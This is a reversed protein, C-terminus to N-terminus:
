RKALAADLNEVDVGSLYAEVANGLWVILVGGALGAAITYQLNASERLGEVVDSPNLGEKVADSREDDGFTQYARGTLWGSLATGASGLILAGVTAGVIAAKGPERNYVQGWGPVVLSRFFAGSRSRLVVADASFAILEAKPLEMAEVALVQGSNADVVRAGVQFSEGLDLIEGLVLANAGALVGIRAAQDPEVFGMAGLEQEEVIRNLQSRETLQLRHDRALNTVVLDAVVLGLQNDATDEGTEQFPMVAFSQERIDGPLRKLSRALADTLRRVRADLGKAEVRKNAEEGNTTTPSANAAAPAPAPAPTPTAPISETTTGESAAATASAPTEKPAEAEATAAKETEQAPEKTSDKNEATKKKQKSSKKRRKKRKKKKALRTASHRADTTTDFSLQGDAPVSSAVSDTLAQVPLALLVGIIGVMVIQVRLM